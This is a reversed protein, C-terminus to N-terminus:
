TGFSVELRVKIKRPIGTEILISAREVRWNRSLGNENPKKCIKLPKVAGRLLLYGM